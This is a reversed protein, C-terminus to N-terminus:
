IRYYEYEQACYHKRLDGIAIFLEPIIKQKTNMKCTEQKYKEAEKKGCKKLLMKYTFDIEPHKKMEKHYIYRDCINAIQSLQVHANFDNACSLLDTVFCWLKEINDKSGNFIKELHTCDIYDHLGNTNLKSTNLINIMQDTYQMYYDQEVEPYSDKKPNFIKQNKLVIEKFLCFAKKKTFVWGSFIKTKIVKIKEANKKAQKEDVLAGIFVDVFTNINKKGCRYEIQYFTVHGFNAKAMYYKTNEGYTRCYFDDLIKNDYIRCILRHGLWHCAKSFPMYKWITKTFFRNVRWPFSDMCNRDYKISYIPHCIFFFLGGWFKSTNIKDWNIIEVESLWKFLKKM